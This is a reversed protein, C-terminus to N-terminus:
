AASMVQHFQFQLIHVSPNCCTKSTSSFSLWLIASGLTPQSPYTSRQVNGERRGRGGERGEKRGGERGGERGGKGMEGGGGGRGERGGEKGWRERQPRGNMEEENNGEGM